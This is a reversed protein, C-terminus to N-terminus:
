KGGQVFAQLREEGSLYGLKPNADWPYFHATICGMVVRYPDYLSTKAGDIGCIVTFSDGPWRGNTGVRVADLKIMLIRKGDGKNTVLVKSFNQFKFLDGLKVPPDQVDTHLWLDYPEFHGVHYKFDNEAAKEFKPLFDKSRSGKGALWCWTNGFCDKQFLRAVELAAVEEGEPSDALQTLDHLDAPGIAHLECGVALACFARLIKSTGSGM